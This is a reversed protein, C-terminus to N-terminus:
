FIGFDKGQRLKAVYAIQGLHYGFHEVAHYVAHLRSVDFGQVRIRDLLTDERLDLLVRDVEAATEELLAVLSETPMPGEASFESPRDRDDSAGGAGSVIWQRLNGSVHLMLNGVSNSADNPRWWIDDESLVELFKNLKPLYDESLLTRSSEVFEAAVTPAAGPTPKM